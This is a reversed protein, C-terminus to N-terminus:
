KYITMEDDPSTPTTAAEPTSSTTPPTRSGGGRRLALGVVLAVVVIVVLAILIWDTTTLAGSGAGGVSRNPAFAISVSAPAGAVTVTTSSTSPSFGSVAGISFTYTNNGEMFVITSGNGFKTAGALTVSWNTGTPLGSETFTVAYPFLVATFGVLEQASAGDVVVVGGTRNQTYGPVHAISFTFSGNPETFLIRATTSNVTQTGVTVAWMSGPALGAAVFTLTYTTTSNATFSIPVTKSSGAIQVSGTPPTATFGREVGVSYSYSGNPESFSVQNTISTLTVGALDVSWGSGSSLGSESFTISFESPAIQSYAISQNVDFGAVTENGTRPVPAFGSVPGALFGYTGNTETFVISSTSSNLTSGALTVGWPTGATLGSEVFRVSYLTPPAVAFTISVRTAAGSVDFTGSDPSAIYGVVRDIRYTYSGNTENVLVTSNSSGASGTGVTVTWPTGTPLGSEVFSVPYEDSFLITVNLAVGTITVTGNSPSPLFGPPGGISYVYSGNALYQVISSGNSEVVNTGLTLSWNSAHPLGSEVFTTSYSPPGFTIDQTVSSGNVDVSGATPTAVYGRVPTVSYGLTANLTLFELTPTATTGVTSNLTVTWSTGWVLGSEDFETVYWGTGPSLVYVVGDGADWAGILGGSGDLFVGNPADGGFAYISPVSVTVREVSNNVPDIVAVAGAGSCSVYVLNVTPDYVVGDPEYCTNLTAIRAMTTANLVTVNNVPGSQNDPQAIFVEHNLPDVATGSTTGRLTARGAVTHNSANFGIATAGSTYYVYDNQSDWTLQEVETSGATTNFADSTWHNTTPDVITVNYYSAVFVEQDTADYVIGTPYYGISAKAVFTHTTANVVTVNGYVAYRGYNTIYLNGNVPDYAVGMPNCGSAFPAGPLSTTLNVPILDCNDGDAVFMEGLSPVSLVASPEVPESSGLEYGSSPNVSRLFGGDPNVYLLGSHADFVVPQGGYLYGNWNVDASQGVTNTSAKIQVLQDSGSGAAVYVSQNSSDYTLGTPGTLGGVSATVTLSADNVVTVNSGGSNAVFIEGLLPDYVMGRPEDGVGVTALLAGTTPKVVFLENGAYSDVYVDHTGPDYLVQAGPNAFTLNAVFTGNSPDMESVTGNQLVVYLVGLATDYALSVPDNVHLTAIGQGTTGNVVSVSNSDLNAVFLTGDTPDVTMAMPTQGSLVTGTIYTWAVQDTTDNYAVVYDTCGFCIQYNTLFVLHSVPDYDVATPANPACITNEQGRLVTANCLSITELVSPGVGSINAGPPTVRSAVRPGGRSGSPISTGTTPRAAPAPLPHGAGTNAAALPVLILLAALVSLLAVRSPAM